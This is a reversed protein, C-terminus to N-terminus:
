LSKKFLVPRSINLLGTKNIVILLNNSKHIKIM